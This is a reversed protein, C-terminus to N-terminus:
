RIELQDGATTNTKAAMGGSIELAMCSKLCVVARMAPLSSIVKLVKLNKDLFLVDIPYRMGVTHVSSCPCILLGQEPALRSTGLLGMLRQWFTQAIRLESVLVVKNGRNIISTGQM